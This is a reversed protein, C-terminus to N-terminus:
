LFTISQAAAGGRVASRAGSSCCFMCVGGLAEGRLRALAVRSGDADGTALLVRVGDADDTRGIVELATVSGGARALGFDRRVALRPSQFDIHADSGACGARVFGFDRRVALM